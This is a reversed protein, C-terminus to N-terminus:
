VGELPIDHTKGLQPLLSQNFSDGPPDPGRLGARRILGARRGHKAQRLWANPALRISGHNTPNPVVTRDEDPSRTPILEEGGIHQHLTNMESWIGIRSPNTPLGQGDVQTVNSRHTANGPVRHNGESQRPPNRDGKDIIEVSPQNAARPLKPHAQHTPIRVTRIMQDNIHRDESLHLPIPHHISGAGPASVM